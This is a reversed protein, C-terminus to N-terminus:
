KPAIRKPMPVKGAHHRPVLDVVLRNGKHDAPDPPLTFQHEIRAPAHTHIVLLGRKLGRRMFDFRSVIGFPKLRHRNTEWDVSPIGVLIRRGEDAVHGYFKTLASVDLVVRTLDPHNGMRTEHAETRGRPWEQAAAEGGLALLMTAIVARLIRLDSGRRGVDGGPM